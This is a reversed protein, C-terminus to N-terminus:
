AVRRVAFSAIYKAVSEPLYYVLRLVTNREYVTITDDRYQELLAFVVNNREQVPYSSFDVLKKTIDNIIEAKVEWLYDEPLTVLEDDDVGPYQYGRICQEAAGGTIFGKAHLTFSRDLVLVTFEKDIPLPSGANMVSKLAAAEILVVRDIAMTTQQEAITKANIVGEKLSKAKVL